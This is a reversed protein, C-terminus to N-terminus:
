GGLYIYVTFNHVCWAVVHMKRMCIIKKSKCKLTSQAYLMHRISCKNKRQTIYGSMKKSLKKLQTLKKAIFPTKKTRSKCPNRLSGFGRFFTRSLTPIRLIFHRVFTSQVMSGHFWPPPLVRKRTLPCSSGIRVVPSFAQCETYETFLIYKSYLM